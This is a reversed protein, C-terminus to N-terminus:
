SDRKLVSSHSTQNISPIECKENLLAPLVHLMYFVFLGAIAPVQEIVLMHLTNWNASPYKQDFYKIKHVSVSETNLQGIAV